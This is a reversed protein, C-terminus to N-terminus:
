ILIIGNQLMVNKSIPTNNAYLVNDHVFVRINGHGMTNFMTGSRTKLDDLTFKGKITANALSGHEVLPLFVTISSNENDILYLYEEVIPYLAPFHKHIYNSIACKREESECKREKSERRYKHLVRKCEVIADQYEVVNTTPLSFM